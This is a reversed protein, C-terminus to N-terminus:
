NMFKIKFAKAEACMSLHSLFVKKGGSKYRLKIPLINELEETVNPWTKKLFLNKFESFEKTFYFQIEELDTEKKNGKPSSFKKTKIIIKYGM